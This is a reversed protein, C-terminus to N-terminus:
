FIALFSVREFLPLRQDSALELLRGAFELWSLERNFFRDKPLAPTTGNATGDAGDRDAPPASLTSPM